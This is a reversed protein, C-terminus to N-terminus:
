KKKDASKNGEKAQSTSAEDANGVEPKGKVSATDAIRVSKKVVPPPRHSRLDNSTINMTNMMTLISTITESKTNAGTRSVANLRRIPEPGSKKLASPTVPREGGDDGEEDSAHLEDRGSTNLRRVQIVPTPRYDYRRSTTNVSPRHAAAAKVLKKGRSPSRKRPNRGRGTGYQNIATTLYRNARPQPPRAKSSGYNGGSTIEPKKAYPSPGRAKVAAAM